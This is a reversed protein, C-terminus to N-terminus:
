VPAAFTLKANLSFPCATGIGNWRGKRSDCLLLSLALAGPFPSTFAPLMAASYILWCGGLANPVFGYSRDAVGCDVCVVRVALLLWECRLRTAGVNLRM